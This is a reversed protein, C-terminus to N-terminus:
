NQVNETTIYTLYKKNCSSYYATFSASVVAHKTFYELVFQLFPVTVLLLVFILAEHLSDGFSAMSSASGVDSLLTRHQLNYLLIRFLM